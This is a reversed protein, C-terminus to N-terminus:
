CSSRWKLATHPHMHSLSITHMHCDGSFLHHVLFLLLFTLSTSHAVRGAWMAKSWHSLYIIAEMSVPMKCEREGDETELGWEQKQREISKKEWARGKCSWGLQRWASAAACSAWWSWLALGASSSLIKPFRVPPVDPLGPSGTPQQPGCRPRM